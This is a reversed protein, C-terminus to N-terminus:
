VQAMLRKVMDSYEVEAKQLGKHVDKDFDKVFSSLSGQQNDQEEMQGENQGNALGIKMEAKRVKEDDKMRRIEMDDDAARTEIKRSMNAAEQQSETTLEFRQYYM